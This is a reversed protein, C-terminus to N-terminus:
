AWVVLPKREREHPELLRSARKAHNRSRGALCAVRIAAGTGRSVGNPKWLCRGTGERGKGDRQKGERGLGLGYPRPCAEGDWGVRNRVNFGVAGLVGHPAGRRDWPERRQAEV